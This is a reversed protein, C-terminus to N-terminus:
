VKEGTETESKESSQNCDNQIETCNSRNINSKDKSNASLENKSDSKALTSAHIIDTDPTSETLATANPQEETTECQNAALRQLAKATEQLNYKRFKYFDKVVSLCCFGKLFEVIVIFDPASYNVKNLPNMEEIIQCINRIVDDRSVRASMRAKFSIGYTTTTGFPTSFYSDLLDTAVKTIEALDIRCITSVPLVRLSYRTKQVQSQYIDGLIHHILECPKELTTKIFLCNKTGSDVQQFRREAPKEEKLAKVERELEDEIEGASEESDEKDDNSELNKSTVETHEPGYLIDAYENLLNYMEKVAQSENRNCTVLFGRMGVDISNWKKRKKYMCKKYYTRSRKCGSKPGDNGGMRINICGLICSSGHVLDTSSPSTDRMYCKAPGVGGLLCNLRNLISLM